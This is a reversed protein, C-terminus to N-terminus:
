RKIYDSSAESFLDECSSESTAEINSQEFISDDEAENM